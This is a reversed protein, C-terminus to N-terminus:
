VPHAFSREEGGRLQFVEKGILRNGRLGIIRGGGRGRRFIPNDYLTQTEGDAILRAVIEVKFNEGPNWFFPLILEINGDDDIFLDFVKDLIKL